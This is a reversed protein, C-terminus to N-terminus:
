QLKQNFYQYIKPISAILIDKTLKGEEKFRTLFKELFKYFPIPNTDLSILLGLSAYTEERFADIEFSPLLKTITVAQLDSIRTILMDGDECAMPITKLCLDHNIQESIMIEPYFYLLENGLNTMGTLFVAKVESEDTNKVFKMKSSRLHTTKTTNIFM